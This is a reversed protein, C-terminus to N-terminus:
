VAERIDMHTHSKPPARLFVQRRAIIALRDNVENTYISAIDLMGIVIPCPPQFSMLNAFM